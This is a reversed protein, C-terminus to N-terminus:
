FSLTSSSSLIETRRESITVTLVLVNITNEIEYRKSSEHYPEILNRM